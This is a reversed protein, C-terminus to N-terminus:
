IWGWTNPNPYSEVWVKETTSIASSDGLIEQLKHESWMQKKKGNYIQAYGERILYSSLYSGKGYRINGVIRGGYKDWKIFSAQIRDDNAYLLDEVKEKVFMGAERELNTKARRIEPTDVNAIRMQIKMPIKKGHLFLIEISDGDIVRLIRAPFWMNKEEPMKPVTLIDLTDLKKRHQKKKSRFVHM